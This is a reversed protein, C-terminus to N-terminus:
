KMTEKVVIALNGLLPIEFQGSDIKGDAAIEFGAVRQLLAQVDPNDAVGPAQFQLGSFIPSSGQRRFRTVTVALVGPLSETASYVNSLYMTQGFDVNKFDLLARVASEVAQRVADSRYHRDCVVELSIDITVSTADMVKVFTGAMRKDEFYASIRKRLDEPVPRLSDGEPALYLNVQNWGQAQARVKAVGGVQYSLAVFDDLTVARQGSRFALPGFRVAHDISEHDAGGAAPLPNIVSDLLPLATKLAQGPQNIAGVPVNGISGGGIKYTARINNSGIPPIQGYIGDGFIVQTSDNEDYQVYYDRSNPGALTIRGDPGTYYLLNDRRIWSVWGAGENVEVVLSEIILPSQTLAFSQNAEGTSSGLVETPVSRSQRVPLGTYVTRGGPGPSVQASSVDIALDLELYEFVLPNAGAVSATFQAGQPIIVVPSGGGPVPKFTLNLSAFAAVPPQLEYGVLRLMQLVSRRESATQLFSESAIRDQYYLVVDGMYAFLDVLLIGLDSPSQDTWEPLRYRALALMAQRLSAFDKNTYDVAPASSM